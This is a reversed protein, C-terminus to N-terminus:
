PPGSGDDDSSGDGSGDGEITTMDPEDTMMPTEDQPHGEVYNRAGRVIAQAVKKQFAPNILKARDRSNNIYAVEVLIAPTTSARLVALGSAYLIGDSLAGRRPLGSVTSIAQMVCTALARSSADGKHYYVSTGSASNARGNSDNHISIFLDAGNDTAIKPRDYLGVDSDSNRTMIVSAGCAELEDRLKRAIALTVNKEYIGGGTAGTARGGHGPDVVILKDKLSGTANKPVRLEVTIWNSQVTPQFGVVRKLDLTIRTVPPADQIMEIRLGSALPHAFEQETAVNEPLNLLANPVDIVLLTTGHEYRIYPKTKGSVAIELRAKQDSDAVFSVQRIEAPLVPKKGGNRPKQQTEMPNVADNGAQSVNTAEDPNREGTDNAPDGPIPPVEGNMPDPKQTNANNKPPATNSKTTNAAVRGPTKAIQAKPDLRAQIGTLVNTPADAAKLALGDALEVVVRAIDTENQGARLRLAQTEDEALPTLTFKEPLTAGLCDLYGRMHATPTQPITRVRFPVPFSTRVQLMGEAFRAELVKALFYVTDGRKGEIPQGKEDLAEPREVVADLMRALDSLAVMPKGDLRATALEEKKSVSRVNVVVTDGRPSVKIEAKLPALAELPVYTDTATAVAPTKLVVEKGAIRLKVPTPPEPMQAHAPLLSFLSTLLCFVSSLLRFDTSPLRYFITKRRVETKQSREEKRQLPSPTRTRHLNHSIKLVASVQGKGTKPLSMAGSRLSPAFRSAGRRLSFNIVIANYGFERLIDLEM